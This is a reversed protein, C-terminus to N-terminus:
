GTHTVPVTVTTFWQSTLTVTTTDAPLPPYLVTWPMGAGRDKDISAYHNSVAAWPSSTGPEKLFTAPYYAATPTTLRPYNEWRASLGDSPSSYGAGANVSFTLVTGAPTATLTHITFTSGRFSSDPSAKTTGITPLSPLALIQQSRDSPTPSASASSPPLKGDGSPTPDTSGSGSCGTLALALALTCAAGIRTPRPHRTTATSPHTTPTM